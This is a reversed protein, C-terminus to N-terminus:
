AASSSAAHASREAASMPGPKERSPMPLLHEPMQFHNRLIDIHRQPARGRRLMVSVRSATVGCRRAIDINTLGNEDMWLRRRYAVPLGQADQTTRNIM